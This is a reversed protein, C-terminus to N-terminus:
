SDFDEGARQVGSQTHLLALGDREFGEQANEFKRAGSVIKYDHIEAEYVGGFPGANEL